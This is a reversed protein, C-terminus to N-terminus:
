YKQLFVCRVSVTFRVGTKVILPRQPLSSMVPQKEVVLASRVCWWWRDFTCMLSWFDVLVHKKQESRFCSSACPRPLKKLKRWPPPSGQPMPATTSRTRSSCNRFSNACNWCCKWSLPSGARAVACRRRMLAEEEVRRQYPRQLDYWNQLHDLSTSVPSGVCALQQRRKWEPLEVDVLSRVVDEAVNVIEVTNQLLVQPVFVDLLLLM